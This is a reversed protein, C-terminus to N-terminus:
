LTEDAVEVLVNSQEFCDAFMESVNTFSEYGIYLLPELNWLEINSM